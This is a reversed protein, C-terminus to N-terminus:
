LDLLTKVFKLAQGAAEALGELKSLFTIASVILLVAAYLKVTTAKLLRRGASIEAVSRDRDDPSLEPSNSSRVAEELDELAKDAQKYAESNHDIRVIRDTAPAYRVESDGSAEHHRRRVLRGFDRGFPAVLQQGIEAVMDDFHTSGGLFHIYFEMFEDRNSVFHNFLALQMGLKQLRASPWDLRGSGVMGGMTRQAAKYWEEFQERPVTAELELAIGAFPEQQHIFDLFRRLNEEFFSYSCTSADNLLDQYEEALDEYDLAM